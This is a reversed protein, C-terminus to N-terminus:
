NLRQIISRKYIDNHSDQHAVELNKVKCWRPFKYQALNARQTVCGAIADVVSYIPLSAKDIGILALVEFPM